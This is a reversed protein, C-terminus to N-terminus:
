SSPPESGGVAPVHCVAHCSSRAANFSDWSWNVLAILDHRDIWTPVPEAFAEGLLHRRLKVPHPRGLKIWLSLLHKGRLYSQSTGNARHLWEPCAECGHLFETESLTAPIELFQPHEIRDLALEPRLRESENSVTATTFNDSMFDPTNHAM